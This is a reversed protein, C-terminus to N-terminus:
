ILVHTEKPARGSGTKAFSATEDDPSPTLSSFRSSGNKWVAGPGMIVMPIRLSHDYLLFKNSPLM